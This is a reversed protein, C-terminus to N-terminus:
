RCIDVEEVYKSLVVEGNSNIRYDAYEGTKMGLHEVIYAPVNLKYMNSNFSLKRKM